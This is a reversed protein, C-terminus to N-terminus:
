PHVSTGRSVLGSHSQWEPSKMKLAPTMFIIESVPYGSKEQHRASEISM